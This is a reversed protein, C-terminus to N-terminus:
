KLLILSDSLNYYQFELKEFNEKWNKEEIDNLFVSSFNLNDENNNVMIKKKLFEIEKIFELIKMELSENRNIQKKNEKEINELQLKQKENEKM